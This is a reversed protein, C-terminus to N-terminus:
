GTDARFVLQGADLSYSGLGARAQDRSATSRTILQPTELVGYFAVKTRVSPDIVGVAVVRTHDRIGTWTLVNTSKVVANNIIDSWVVTARSYSRDHPVEAVTTWRPEDTFLAVTTYRRRIDLLLSRVVAPSVANIM